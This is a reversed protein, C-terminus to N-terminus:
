ARHIEITQVVDSLGSGEMNQSKFFDNIKAIRGGTLDTTLPSKLSARPSRM